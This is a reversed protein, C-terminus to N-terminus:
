GFGSGPVVCVGTSNLLEMAYFADPKKGNNQAAQVAKKPLTIQPFVYMAGDAQQCSVGEM